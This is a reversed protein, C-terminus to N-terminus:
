AGVVAVFQWNLTLGKPVLLFFWIKALRIHGKEVYKDNKSIQWSLSSKKFRCILALAAVPAQPVLVKVM